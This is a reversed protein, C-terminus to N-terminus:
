PVAVGEGAALRAKDRLQAVCAGCGTGCRLASQVTALRQRADGGAAALAADIAREGVGHCVCVIRDAPRLDGSPPAPALLVRSMAGVPAGELLLGELWPAAVPPQPATPAVPGALRMAALRGDELRLRRGQGTGRDDYAMTRADHLGLLADFRALWAAQPAQLAFARLKLVPHAGATPVAWALALGDCAELWERRASELRDLPLRAWAVLQWRVPLAEVRVAAHKLEPQRSIPDLAPISVANVGTDDGGRVFAGGWHMPLFAHGSRLDPSATVLAAFDGRRSRVRVPAGDVLGRRALDDPHMALWPADARAFLAPVRGSRSMGHWQDPLRGTTLAIPFRPDAAEAPARWGAEPFRARGDATAFVADTYLRPTAGGADAAFPWQQPGHAELMAWSLGGIDLDRGITFRQHERWVAQADDFRFGSERGPHLRAALRRGADALIEWDARALGPAPLLARVRSIRRESNTVTGDKEGWTTAPLVVHAHGITEGHDYADQVVVFEARRLAERVRTADPLSQAPNTCVIWVARVRGEHLAEFLEVATLGPTAPMADVQWLRAVEARDEASAPDRHGPLLTALAGVERGGMANPQGTLSFPAAGPRGIQGTALHLAILAANKDTGSSSQNLGQCYLSLVAGAQAWWRAATVIAAEPVGCVRAAARPSMERVRARLADFGTTHAAIYAEDVRREWILWHLMAHFLAVDTGPLIPLHLDAARATVTARPDVVVMRQDPRARRADEIRRMVIPHADATNSGAIFLLDAAEIDDYCAPVADAGLTRKYGTVASSMCLRSNTDINNTGVAVRALKNLLHYDETLLQGSGYFAVADPGHERVIAAFREVVHAMAEDWGAPQWAEDRSRRLRPALVRGGARTVQALTSGKTCLRGRNAPHGPDGRVSLVRAGDTTAIVGCGVGCYPCTTRVETSM